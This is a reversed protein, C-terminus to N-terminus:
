KLLSHLILSILAAASSIVASWLKTAFLAQSEMKLLREKIADITEDEHIMHDRIFRSLDKQEERLQKLESLILEKYQNFDNSM